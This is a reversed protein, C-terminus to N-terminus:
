WGSPLGWVGPTILEVSNGAPDRFYISKGGKPWEVEDEIIIANEQLKQRWTDLAEPEIGLAFHGPGRAGHPTKDEKLTTDAIFALLISSAGVQFFDHRGPEQGIVNLGLVTQYFTEAARLDDVYIATEIVAKIKMKLDESVAVVQDRKPELAIWHRTSLLLVGPFLLPPRLRAARVIEICLLRLTMVSNGTHPM